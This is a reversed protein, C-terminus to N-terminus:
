RSDAKSTVHRRRIFLSAGIGGLTAAGITVYPWIYAGSEAAAADVAHRVPPLTTGVIVGTAAGFALVPVRRWPAFRANSLRIVILAPVFGVIAGVAACSVIALLDVLPVFPGSVFSLAFGILAGTLASTAFASKLLQGLPATAFPTNADFVIPKM